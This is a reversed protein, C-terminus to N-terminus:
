KKREENTRENQKRRRHNREPQKRRRDRGNARGGRRDRDGGGSSPKPPPPATGFTTTNRTKEVNADRPEDERSDDGVEGGADERTSLMRPHEKTTNLSAATPNPTM